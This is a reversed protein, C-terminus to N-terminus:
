DKGGDGAGHTNLLIRQTMIFATNLSGLSADVESKTWNQREASGSAVIRCQEALNPEFRLTMGVERWLWALGSEAAANRQGSAGIAEVYTKTESLATSLAQFAAELRIRDDAKMTQHENLWESLDRFLSTLTAPDFRM